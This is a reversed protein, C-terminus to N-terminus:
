KKKSIHLIGHLLIHALDEGSFIHKICSREVKANKLALSFALIINRLWGVPDWALHNNFVPVSEFFLIGWWKRDFSFCFFSSENCRIILIKWFIWLSTVELEEINELCTQCKTMTPKELKWPFYTNSVFGKLNWSTCEELVCLPLPRLINSMQCKDTKKLFYTFM